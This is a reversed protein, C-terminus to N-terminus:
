DLRPFGSSQMVSVQLPRGKEDVLVRFTVTGEEGLRRSQAPYNPQVRSKVALEASEVAEASVSVAASTAVDVPVEVQPVPITEPQPIELTPEVLEPKAIEPKVPETPQPDSILTAEMPPAFTPPKVLALSTAILYIAVVHLGAVLAFRGGGALSFGKLAQM